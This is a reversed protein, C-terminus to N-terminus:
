RESRAEFIKFSVQCPKDLEANSLMVFGNKRDILLRTPSPEKTSVRLAVDTAMRPRSLNTLSPTPHDTRPFTPNAFVDEADAIFLQIFSSLIANFSVNM